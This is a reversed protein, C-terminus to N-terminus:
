SVPRFVSLTIAPLNPHIVQRSRWVFNTERDLWFQNQFEWDLDKCVCSETLVITDIKTGLIEISESGLEEFRGTIRMSFRQADKFDVLRSVPELPAARTTGDAIPDSQLLQCGSLNWQLGATSVIRGGRTTVAIRESSTWLQDRGNSSALVFISEGGSGVRFGISAYPIAAAQELTIGSAGGFNFGTSLADKMTGYDIGLRDCAGLPASLGGLLLLRRSVTVTSRKAINM